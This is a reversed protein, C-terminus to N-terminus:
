DKLRREEYRRKKEKYRDWQELQQSVFIAFAILILVVAALAKM